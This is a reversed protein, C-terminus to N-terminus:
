QTLSFKTELELVRLFIQPASLLQSSTCLQAPGTPLDPFCWPYRDALGAGDRYGSTHITMRSTGILEM